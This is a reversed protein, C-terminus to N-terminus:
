PRRWPRQRPPFMSLLILEDTWHALGTRIRVYNCISKAVDPNCLLRTRSFLPCAEFRLDRTAEEIRQLETLKVDGM